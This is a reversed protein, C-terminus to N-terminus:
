RIRLVIENEKSFLFRERAFRAIYEPDQMKDADLRLIAERARLEYLELELANREQYKEFIEVWYSGITITTITIVVVSTLGLFLLRKKQKNEKKKVKPMVIGVERSLNYCSFNLM